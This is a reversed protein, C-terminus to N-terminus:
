RATAAPRPPWPCSGRSRSTTARSSSRWPAVVDVEDVGDAVAQATTEAAGDVDYAGDPFNAVTAVKM